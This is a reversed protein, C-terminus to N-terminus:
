GHIIVGKEKEIKTLQIIELGLARATCYEATAGKSNEWGPLLALIDANLCIFELDAALAKRLDFGHEKQAQAEDGTPNGKGIDGYTECDKEAPNFVEFGDRRLVAAAAFFAPFNFEPVGRMPGALYVKKKPETSM